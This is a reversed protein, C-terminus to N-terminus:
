IKYVSNYDAIKVQPHDRLVSLMESLEMTPDTVSIRYIIDNGQGIAELVACHLEALIQEVEQEQVEPLFKVLLENNKSPNVSTVGTESYAAGDFLLIGLMLTLLGIKM